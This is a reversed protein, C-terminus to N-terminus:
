EIPMDLYRPPAIYLIQDNFHIHSLEKPPLVPPPGEIIVPIISPAKEELNETLQLAYEWEKRVWESKKANNSWFLFFVDSKTIEEYLTKEWIEGPELSLIDQFYEIGVQGLMQTRKLVENRDKSSYSIYARRFNRPKTDAMPSDYKEQGINISFIIHGIPINDQTILLRGISKTKNFTSPFSFDFEVSTTEGQWTISREMCGLVAGDLQLTFTIRSGKAIRKDLSKIAKKVLDEDFYRALSEVEKEKDPIHVFAVLYYKSQLVVHSPAFVSCKVLDDSVQELPQEVV